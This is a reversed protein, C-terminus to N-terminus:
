LSRLDRQKDGQGLQQVDLDIQHVDPGIQHM